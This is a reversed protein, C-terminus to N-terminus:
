DETHLVRDWASPPQGPEWDKRFEWWPMMFFQAGVQLKVFYAVWGPRVDIITALGLM